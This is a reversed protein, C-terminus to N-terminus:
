GMLHQYEATARIKSDSEQINSEGSSIEQMAAVVRTQRDM